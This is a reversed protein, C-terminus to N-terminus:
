KGFGTNLEAASLSARAIQSRHEPLKFSSDRGQPAIERVSDFLM